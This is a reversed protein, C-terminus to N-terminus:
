LWIKVFLLDKKLKYVNAFHWITLLGCAMVAYRNQGIGMMGMLKATFGPYTSEGSFEKFAHCIFQVNESNV